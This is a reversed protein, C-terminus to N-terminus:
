ERRLVSLCSLCLFLYSVITQTPFNNDIDCNGYRSEYNAMPTGWGTPDPTGATIDAPISDRPWYFINILESTWEM